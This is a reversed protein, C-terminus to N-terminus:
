ILAHIRTEDFETSQGNHWKLVSIIVDEDNAYHKDRLGEKMPCLLHYDPPALDLSYPPYPLTIWGFSLERPSNTLKFSTARDM